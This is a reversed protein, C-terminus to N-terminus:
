GLLTGCERGGSLQPDLGVTEGAVQGAAYGEPDVQLSRTTGSLRRLRTGQDALYTYVEDRYNERVAPLTTEVAAPEREAILEKIKATISQACGYAFSDLFRRGKGYHEKRLRQVTQILYILMEKAVVTNHFRGIIFSRGVSLTSCCFYLKCTALWLLREWPLLRSTKWGEVRMTHESQPGQAEVETLSLNYTALLQHVKAAALAAEHETAAEDRSLQLLKQIKRILSNQAVHDISAAM